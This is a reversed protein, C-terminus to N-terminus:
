KLLKSGFSWFSIISLVSCSNAQIQRAFSYSEKHTMALFSGGKSRVLTIEQKGPLPRKKVFAGSVPLSIFNRIYPLVLTQLM